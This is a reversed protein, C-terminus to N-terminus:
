IDVKFSVSRMYKGYLSCYDCGDLNEAYECLCDNLHCDACYDYLMVRPLFKINREIIEDLSSNSM